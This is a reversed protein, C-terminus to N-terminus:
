LESRKHRRMYIEGAVAGLCQRVILIDNQNEPLGTDKLRMIAPLNEELAMWLQDALATTVSEDNTM